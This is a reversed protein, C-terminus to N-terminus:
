SGKFVLNGVDQIFFHRAKLRESTINITSIVVTPMKVNILLIIEHVASNLMFFTKYGQPWFAM